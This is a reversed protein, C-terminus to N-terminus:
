FQQRGHGRLPGRINNAIKLCNRAEVLVDLQNVAVVADPSIRSSVGALEGEAGVCLGFDKCRRVKQFCNRCRWDEICHLCKQTGPWHQERQVRVPRKGM